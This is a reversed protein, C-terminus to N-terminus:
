DARTGDNAARQARATKLDYAVNKIIMEFSVFSFLAICVVLVASVLTKATDIDMAPLETKFM